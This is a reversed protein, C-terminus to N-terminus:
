GRNEKKYRVESIRLKRLKHGVGKQLVGVNRGADM